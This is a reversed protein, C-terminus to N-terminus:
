VKGIAGTATESFYSTDAEAAGIESLQGSRLAMVRDALRLTSHRHAIIVITLDQRLQKIAEQVLRENEADLASTAEDLVLLTPRRLLARALAIRQREGGSLRVGRDGVRTALGEPLRGVFDEAAAQRLAAQLEEDTATPHAWLLNARLTDHYLFTEQPVYGVSARWDRALAGSLPVGDVLIRGGTPTLLGLLLDALTSKGAGSPGCIAVTQRAPLVWNLGALTAAGTTADHRFEVNEFRIERRLEIRQAPREAIPEAAETLRKRLAEAAGFAPLIQAVRQWASQIGSMRSLLRIFVLGLLVLEAGKLGAALTAYLAFGCIAGASALEVLARNVAQGRALHVAHSSVEGAIRLFAEAHAKEQGHSKALKMGAIHETAAAALAEHRSQGAQGHHRTRRSLPSIVFMIAAGSALALLTVLPSIAGAVVIQATAIAVAGALSLIQSAGYGAQVLDVTLVHILDSARQRTFFAWNAQLISQHFRGRLYLTFDAQLRATVIALTASVATRVLALILFLGLLAPLTIPIHWARLHVAIQAGLGAGSTAGGTGAIELMPLVMLLGSGETLGALVLLILALIMRRRSHSWLCAAFTTALQRQDPEDRSM